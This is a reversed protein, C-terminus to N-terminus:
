DFLNDYIQLTMFIGAYRSSSEPPSLSRHDSHRPSKSRSRNYSLHQYHEGPAASHSRQGLMAGNQLNTM